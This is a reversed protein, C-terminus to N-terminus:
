QLEKEAYDVSKEWSRREKRSKRTDLTANAPVQCLKQKIFSDLKVPKYDMQELRYCAHREKEEGKSHYHAHITLGVERTSNEPNHVLNCTVIRDTEPDRYYYLTEDRATCWGHYRYWEESQRDHNGRILIADFKFKDFFKEHWERENGFCFDGLIYVLDSSGIVELNKFIIEEFNEPRNEYKIINKHGLHLDGIIWIDM